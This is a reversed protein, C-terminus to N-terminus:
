IITVLANILAVYFGDLILFIYQFSFPSFVLEPIKDVEFEVGDRSLVFMEGIFSVPMGNAYMQPNLAM